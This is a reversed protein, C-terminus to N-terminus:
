VNGNVKSSPVETVADPVAVLEPPCWPPFLAEVDSYLVARVNENMNESSIPVSIKSIFVPNDGNIRSVEDVYSEVVAIALHSSFITNIAGIRHYSAVVGVPTMIPKEIAM